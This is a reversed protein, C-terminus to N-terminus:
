AKEWIVYFRITKTPFTFAGSLILRNDKFEFFRPQAGSVTPNSFFDGYNIVKDPQLEYRGGYSVYNALPKLYSKQEDTLPGLFVAFQEAPDPPNPLNLHASFYGQETYILLGTAKTGYFETRNGEDDKFESTVLKWVGILQNQTM